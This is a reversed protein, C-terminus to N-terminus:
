LSLPLSLCIIGGVSAAFTQPSMEGPFRMESANCNFSFKKLLKPGELCVICWFNVWFNGFTGTHNLAQALWFRAENLTCHLRLKPAPFYSWWCQVRGVSCTWPPQLLLRTNILLILLFCIKSPKEGFSSELCWLFYLHVSLRFRAACGSPFFRYQGRFSTTFKM